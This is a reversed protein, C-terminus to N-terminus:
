INRYDTFDIPIERNIEFTDPSIVSDYALINVGSNKAKVIAESFDPDTEWNLYFKDVGKLQILFFIYGLYGEEVAKIMELVHKKGRSTPADPFRAFNNEELTVGKIEMFGSENNKEFAIDFRSNKFTVERKVTDLNNLDAIKNNLLADYVVENPAQSDMNIIRDGKYVGIISYKTKRSKIHSKDELILKCGTVLLEKCRGTNKVHVKELVGDIYVNAIFRNPRDKFIGFVIKEYKM